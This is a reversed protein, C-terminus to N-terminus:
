VIRNLYEKYLKIVKKKEFNKKIFFRANRSLKKRLSYDEVISLISNELGKQSGTKFKIGNFNHIFSDKLGYTDSVIVPLGCSLAEIVSVGFGERYSPFVFIDSIQLFKNVDNTFPIIKVFKKIKNYKYNILKKVNIEDDGVLLLKIQIKNKLINDISKLLLDIGKEYNIRGVYILIKDSYKFKLKKRIEQKNKIIYFKKTDVGCISGAGLVDIKKKTINNKYLYKRQSKGDCILYNSCFCIIKDFFKLFNKYFFNKNSWVQGTFIHVKTKVPSVLSAISSLLGSKPTISVILDYKNKYIFVILKILCYIDLYLNINREFPLHYYKISKIQNKKNLFKKNTLIEIDINHDISNVLDEFFVKFTLPRNGVLLIKKKTNLM